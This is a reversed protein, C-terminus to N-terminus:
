VLCSERRWLKRNPTMFVASLSCIQFIQFARQSGKEETVLPNLFTFNPLPKYCTYKKAERFADNVTLSHFHM